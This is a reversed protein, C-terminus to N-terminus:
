RHQHCCSEAEWGRRTPFHCRKGCKLFITYGLNESTQDSRIKKISSKTTHDVCTPDQILPLLRAHLSKHTLLFLCMAPTPTDRSRNGDLQATRSRTANIVNWKHDILPLDVQFKHLLPSTHKYSTSSTLYM